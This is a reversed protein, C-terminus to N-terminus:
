FKQGILQVLIRLSQLAEPAFGAGSGGQIMGIDAGDVVDCFMFSFKEEHHFQEFTFCELVADGPTRERHVSEQFDTNLGAM